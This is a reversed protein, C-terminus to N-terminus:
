ASEVLRGVWWPFAVMREALAKKYDSAEHDMNALIQALKSRREALDAIPTVYYPDLAAEAPSYTGENINFSCCAGRPAEAERIPKNSWAPPVAKGQTSTNKRAKQKGGGIKVAKEKASGTMAAKEKASGKASAAKKGAKRGDSSRKEGGRKRQQSTDGAKASARGRV